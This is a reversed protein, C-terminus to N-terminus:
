SHLHHNTKKKKKKLTLYLDAARPFLLIGPPVSPKKEIMNEVVQDWALDHRLRYLTALKPKKSGTLFGHHKFSVVDGPKPQWRQEFLTTGAVAMFVVGNPRIVHRNVNESLPLYVCL